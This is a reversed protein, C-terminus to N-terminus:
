DGMLNRYQQMLKEPGQSLLVFNYKPDPVRLLSEHLRQYNFDMEGLIVVVKTRPAYCLYYTGQRM